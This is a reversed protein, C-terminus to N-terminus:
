EIIRKWIETSEVNITDNKSITSIEWLDGNFTSKFEVSLGIVLSNGHYNIHETYTDGEFTYEGGGGWTRNEGAQKGFAFHKKTLLKVTPNTFHTDWYTTDPYISRSYTIEWAGEYPNEKADKMPNKCAIILIGAFALVFCITKKMIKAKTFQYEITKKDFKHLLGIWVM